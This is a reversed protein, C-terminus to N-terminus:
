LPRECVYPHVDACRQDYWLAGADNRKEICDLGAGNDPQNPGWATVLIPRGDAWVFTGDAAIDSGGLWIGAATDLPNFATGLLAPWGDLFTDEAASNVSALHGGWEICSDEADIWSLSEAFFGYCSGAFAQGPCASAPASSAGADGAAGSITGGPGNGASVSGGSGSGGPSNGGSGGSGPIAGASGSPNGGSNSGVGPTNGSSGSASGANGAGGAGPSGTAPSGTAPSGGSGSSSSEVGADASAGADSGAAEESGGLQGGTNSSPDLPVPSAEAEGSTDVPAPGEAMAPSAADAPLASSTDPASAEPAPTSAAQSRDVLSPEYSEATLTCAYALSVLTLSVGRWRWSRHLTPASAATLSAAGLGAARVSPLSPQHSCEARARSPQAGAVFYRM